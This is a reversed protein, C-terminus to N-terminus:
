NAWTVFTFVRDGDGFDREYVSFRGDRSRRIRKGWQAPTDLGDRRKASLSTQAITTTSDIHAYILDLQEGDHANPHENSPPGAPNRTYDMCSGLNPNDFIEDQHNLGFNHGIEQCMVMQKWAPTNYTSTNFYTDNLKTIAKTIHSGTIWIQAIGLWGNNGYTNNCVRIKGAPASCSKRTGNSDSGPEILIDLVGSLNSWDSSATALYSNWGSTVSDVLKLTFPNSKRAWHYTGWSHGAMLPSPLAALTVFVLLVVTLLYLRIKTFM